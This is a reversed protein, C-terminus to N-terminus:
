GTAGFQLPGRARGRGAALAALVLLTAGAATGAAPEPVLAYSVLESESTEGQFTETEKVKGVGEALWQSGRSSLSINQGNLRGSIAFSMDIRVASFTGAPVHVTEMRVLKSTAEYSLTEEGFGEIQIIADGTTRHTSPIPAVPPCWVFPPDFVVLADTFGVALAVGHYRLGEEDNTLYEGLDIADDATPVLLWALEDGIPEQDSLVV